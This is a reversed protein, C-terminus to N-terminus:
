KSGNNAGTLSEFEEVSLVKITYGKYPISGDSHRTKCSKVRSHTSNKTLGLYKDVETYGLIIFEEGEPTKLKVPYKVQPPKQYVKDILEPNLIKIYEVPKTSGKINIPADLDIFQGLDEVIEPLVNYLNVLKDWRENKRKLENQAHYLAQEIGTDDFGFYRAYDLASELAEIDPAIGLDDEEDRDRHYKEIKIKTDIDNIVIDLVERITPNLFNKIIKNNKDSM